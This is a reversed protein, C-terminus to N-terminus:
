EISFYKKQLKNRVAKNEFDLTKVKKCYGPPDEIELQNVGRCREYILKAVRRVSKECRFDERICIRSMGEKERVKLCCEEEEWCVGCKDVDNFLLFVENEAQLGGETFSLKFSNNIGNKM